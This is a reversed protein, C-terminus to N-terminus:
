TLKYSFISKSHHKKELMKDPGWKSLDTAVYCWDKDDPKLDWYWDPVVVTRTEISHDAYRLKIELNSVGQGSTLFLFFKAYNKAPVSLVYADGGASRRAQNSQGDDKAYPLIFEPHKDTAPFKGDDPLAHPDPAGFTAAASTTAVGGAGDINDRMPVLKGGVLTSITRTNFADTVDVQIVDAARGSKLAFCCFLIFTLLRPDKKM